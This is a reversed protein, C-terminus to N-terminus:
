PAGEAPIANGHADLNWVPDADVDRGLMQPLVAPASGNALAAWNGTLGQPTLAVNPYVRRFKGARVKVQAPTAGLDRLQATAANLRGRADRTLEGLPWACAEALAEFLPDAPRPKAEPPPAPGLPEEEARSQEARTNRGPMRKADSESVPDIDPDSADPKWRATAARRGAATRRARHDRVDASSPNHDLYGVIEYGDATVLWRGRELLVKLAPRVERPRLGLAAALDEIDPGPLRGDTEHEHCYSVGCGQLGIAALGAGVWSRHRWWGCEMVYKPLGRAAKMLGM